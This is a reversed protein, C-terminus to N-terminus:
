VLKLILFKKRIGLIFKDEILKFGNDRSRGSCERILSDRGMKERPRELTSSPRM